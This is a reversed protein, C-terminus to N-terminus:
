LCVHEIVGAQEAVSLKMTCNPCTATASKECACTKCDRCRAEKCTPCIEADADVVFVLECAPNACEVEDQSWAQERGYKQSSRIVVFAYMGSYDIALDGQLDEQIWNSSARLGEGIAGTAQGGSQNAAAFLTALGPQAVGRMPTFVDDNAARAFIVTGNIDCVVVTGTENVPAIEVARMAVASRSARVSEHVKVLVRADLWSSELDGVDAPILVEAAFADAVREEVKSRKATPLTYLADAWTPHHRQVHHGYEHVITFRDRDATAAASIVIAAPMGARPQYYGFVSCGAKPSIDYELSLEPSAAVTDEPDEGLAAISLIGREDELRVLETAIARYNRQQIRAAFDNASFADM